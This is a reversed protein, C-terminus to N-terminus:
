QAQRKILYDSWQCAMAEAIGAYTKSREASRAPGPPLRNQGSDTQNAWRKKGDVLRPAIHETPKLKPLNKLWLGTKKSADDGFEYPQVYQSAKRGDFGNAKAYEDSIKTSICGVPNEVAISPVPAAMIKRVFDLADITLQPDRLGRTTWHMGSSCLYICPPHAILLDWGFGLMNNSYLVSLLDAQIHHGDAEQVDCSYANHGLAAFADRVTGSCECGVLVNLRKSHM